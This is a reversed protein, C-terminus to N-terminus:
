FSVKLKIGASKGRISSINAPLINIRYGSEPDSLIADVINYVYLGTLVTLSIDRITATRKLNEYRREVLNGYELAEQEQTINQYRTLMKPYGNNLHSYNVISYFALLTAVSTSATLITGKVKENKYWQSASPVLGLLLSISRKPKAFLELKQKGSPNIYINESRDRATPHKIEIRHQYPGIDTQLYGKGYTSDDIVILSNKDTIITINHTMGEKIRKYSSLTSDNEIKNQFDIVLAHHIDPKIKIKSRRDEYEPHVLILTHEGSEIKMSDGKIPFPNSFDQDVVVQFTDINTQFSLWGYSISDSEQSYVTTCIFFYLVVFSYIKQIM